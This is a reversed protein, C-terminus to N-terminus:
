SDGVKEVDGIFYYSKFKSDSMQRAPQGLFRIRVKDMKKDYTRIYPQKPDVIASFITLDFEKSEGAEYPHITLKKGKKNVASPNDYMGHEHDQLSPNALKLTEYQENSLSMTLSVEYDELLFRKEGKGVKLTQYKPRAEFVVKDALYELQEGDYTVKCLGYPLRIKDM